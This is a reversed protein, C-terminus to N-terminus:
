RKFLKYAQNYRDNFLQYNENLFIDDNETPKDCHCFLPRSKDVNQGWLNVGIEDGAICVKISALKVADETTILFKNQINDLANVAEDQTLFNTM